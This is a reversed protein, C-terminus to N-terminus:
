SSKDPRQGHNDVQPEDRPADLGPLEPQDDAMAHGLLEAAIARTVGSKKQFAVLDLEDVIERAQRYSREMRLICYRIVAPDVLMQRDAFLKAMIAALLDDSPEGIAIPTAARLRSILDPLQLGWDAPSTRATLLLHAEASMVANILHFLGAEDIGKGCNEVLILAGGQLSAALAHWHLDQADYIAHDGSGARIAVLHSKGSAEPGTLVAVRSPWEPWRDLFDVAAANAPARVFEERGFHPEAGFHLTLQQPL